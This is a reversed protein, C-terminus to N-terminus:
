GDEGHADYHLLVRCNEIGHKKYIFTARRNTVQLSLDYIDIGYEALPQESRKLLQSGYGNRRHREDVDLTVVTARRRNRLVEMILFAVITKDVELVITEAGERDMFYALETADYSVGGPFSAQDIELLSEFDASVAHRILTKPMSRVPNKDNHYCCGHSAAEVAVVGTELTDTLSQVFRIETVCM